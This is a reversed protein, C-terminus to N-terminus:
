QPVVSAKSSEARRRSDAHNGVLPDAFGQWFDDVNCFLKLLSM